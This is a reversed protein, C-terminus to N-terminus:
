SQGTVGWWRTSSRICFENRSFCLLWILKWRRSLSVHNEQHQRIHPLLQTLQWEQFGLTSLRLPTLPTHHPLHLNGKWHQPFLNPDQQWANLILPIWKCGLYPPCTMSNNFWGLNLYNEEWERLSVTAAVAIERCLIMIYLDRKPCGDSRHHQGFTFIM